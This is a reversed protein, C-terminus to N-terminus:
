EPDDPDCYTIPNGTSKLYREPIRKGVYCDRIQQEAWDGIFGWRQGRKIPPLLPKCPFNKPTAELWENPRFAGIVIAGDRALVLDCKEVQARGMRWAYRAAQYITSEDDSLKASVSVLLFRHRVRLFEAGYQAILEETTRPGREGSGHGGAENTLDPYVDIVAAEVEFAVSPDQIGHRHVVHQVELGEVQIEEIRQEKLSRSDEDQIESYDGRAHQFIRDGTGKGVYFTEGDRPDILRYVYHALQEAVGPPFSDIPM